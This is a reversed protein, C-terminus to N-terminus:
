EAPAGPDPPPQADTEARHPERRIVEVQPDSWPGTVRYTSAGIEGLPRRLVSGAAAGVAAGIPGGALAGVATLLNGSRPHVDITQDYTQARLDASGGIRIEAAPGDLALGQARARGDAFHVEGGIRNFAFGREFFDRFDLTLRRPLEAVSLLGLVRGAGPEVDALQGDKVLLSLRGELAEVRFGTPSGPWAAAFGIRGNGGRLREGQGLGALLAGYDQSDIDLQVRTRQASGRGRWEGTADIAQGPARVQLRELQLGDAVPRTRLSAEGLRADGLRLDAVDIQLAPLRAPDSSDDAPAAGRARAAAGAVPPTRQWHVREFRGVVPGRGDPLQLSGALAPGEFGLATGGAAPAARIRTDPFSGGMLSLRDVALDIRRLPMSGGEGDGDGEGGAGGLLGLWDMVAFEATRGGLVVGSAPPATAAAGGLAIALGTADGDVRARLAMRQGLRVALENGGDLPLEVRVEAPLAAGAPKALPAPLDLTTGRLDSRLVLSPPADDGGTDRPVEVGVTWASRGRARPHLWELAQVRDILTGIGVVAGLEGEFALRPDRAHGEGAALRLHATRGDMQAQLAPAAFGHQDYRLRGRLQDLQLGWAQEAVRVGDFQVAGDILPAEGFDLEMAFRANAPGAARLGDLTPSLGAYLPTRRLMAFMAAIDGGSEASVRLPAQSFDAIGAELQAVDVGALAGRGRLDFGNAIFRVRGDLREVAPWEPQFRVQADVLEAEAHFLGPAPRGATARFPWDDLDGSVVARGNRVRGGVLAADLWGITAESMVHRVWFRRAVPIEAEDVAAAIDITPRGSGAAFGLGGRVHAGYGDGAIRLGPTQVQWGAGDRWAAITGDLSFDHPEGFGLPWDLRWRTAPDPEFVLGGADGRLRGGARLLGPREGVPVFGADEIRAQVRMRGDADRVLAVDHLVARPSAERLWSRLSPSLRDSLPLLALLPGADIRDAAFALVAGSGLVAGDLSQTAGHATLRLRGADLRWGADGAQWQVDADLREFRAEDSEGSVAQLAVDELEARARMAVVRRGSLTAWADADGHGDVVAVGAYRLLPSWGDLDARAIGLWARGDGSGRALDLVARVPADAEVRWANAAARVRDGSVRLRLDIRPVHTHIGLGPAVIDLSGDRLVVEGIRELGAFPDSDGAAQGPLGQVHWSGDDHRELQLHLDRLRLETLSRGPLWGTYPMVLIEATGIAVPADVEGIRLGTVQLLPGRRTWTTDLSDFGVPRGAREGLWAAVRDPHREALPLLLQSAIGGALAVVVLVLALLYWTWRGARRAHRRVPSM